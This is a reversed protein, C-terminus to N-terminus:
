AATSQSIARKAITMPCRTRTALGGQAEEAEVGAGVMGTAANTGMGMGNGMDMVHRLGLRGM